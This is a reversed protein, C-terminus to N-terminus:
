VNMLCPHKKWSSNLRSLLSEWNPIGSLADPKEINSAGTALACDLAQDPSMERLFASLFGAITCDGAGTAGAVNVKFCPSYSEYGLWEGLGGFSAKGLALLRTKNDTVRVYLGSSGLKIVVIATGYSLLRQALSRIEHIGIGGLPVGQSLQQEFIQFKGVDIMFLLEDISPMFIDTFPLTTQLIQDWDALGAPSNSDTRAMDLSTTLRHAKAMKFLKVLESGNDRYMNRMLPPYGFHMLDAHDLEDASIDDAVFTDNAGSCHMFMRDVNEPNIVVTYSTTENHIQILGTNESALERSTIRQIEQGFLDDGIKGALRTQIGLRHLALGTNAVAGGTSTLAKGIPLLSGPVFEGQYGKPMQPIIDLCIHGAVIANKPTTKMVIKV